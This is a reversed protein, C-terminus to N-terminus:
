EFAKRYRAMRADRRAAAIGAEVNQCELGCRSGAECDKLARAADEPHTQFYATTRPKAECAELVLALLLAIVRM